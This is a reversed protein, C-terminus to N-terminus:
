KEVETEEGPGLGTSTLFHLSMKNTLVIETQGGIGTVDPLLLQGWGLGPFLTNEKGM